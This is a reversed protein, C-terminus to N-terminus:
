SFRALTAHTSTRFGRKVNASVWRANLVAVLFDARWGECILHVTIAGM